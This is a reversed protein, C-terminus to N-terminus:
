ATKIWSQYFGIKEAAFKVCDSYLV